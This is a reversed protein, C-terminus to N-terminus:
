ESIPSFLGKKNPIRAMQYTQGKITLPTCKWNCKLQDLDGLVLYDMDGRSLHTGHWLKNVPMLVTCLFLLSLYLTLRLNPMEKFYLLGIISLLLAYFIGLQFNTFYFHWSNSTIFESIQFLFDHLFDLPFDLYEWVLNLNLGLEWLIVVLIGIVFLVPFILNFILQVGLMLPHFGQEFGLIIPALALQVALSIILPVLIWKQWWKRMSELGLKHILLIALVAIHSMWFGLDFLMNPNWCVILFLSLLVGNVPRQDKAYICSIGITTLMIAARIASVPFGVWCTFVWVMGVSLAISWKPGFIKSFVFYVILYVFGVHFGSVAFLHALGTGVYAQKLQESAFHKKGKVLAQFLAFSTSSPIKKGIQFQADMAMFKIQYPGLCGKRKVWQQFDFQWPFPKKGTMKQLCFEGHNGEIVPPWKQRLLFLKEGSETRIVFSRGSSSIKDVVGEVKILQIESSINNAITKRHIFGLSLGLFLGLFGIFVGQLWRHNFPMKLPMIVLIFIALTPVVLEALVGIRDCFFLGLLFPPLFRLLPYSGWQIM